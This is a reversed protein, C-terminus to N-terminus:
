ATPFVPPPPVPPPASQLSDDSASMPISGPFVSPPPPTSSIMEAAPNAQTITGGDIQETELPHDFGPAPQYTQAQDMASPQERLPGGLPQANLAIIPEPAPNNASGLAQFAADVANRADDLTGTSVSQGDQEGQTDVIHPSSVAQEIQSLTQVDTDIVTDSVNGDYVSDSPQSSPPAPPAVLGAIDPSASASGPASIPQAQTSYPEDSVVGSRQETGNDDHNLIPTDYAPQTLAEVTDSPVEPQTNATLTGTRSPPEVVRQHTFSSEAPRPLDPQPQDGAWSTQDASMPADEQTLLTGDSRVRIQPPEPPQEPEIYEYPAEVDQAQEDTPQQHEEVTPLLVDDPAGHDDGEGLPMSGDNHEHPDHHIELTGADPESTREGDSEALNSIDANGYNQPDGNSEGALSPEALEAAVLQQNAGAAMLQSSVSMTQPTTRDNGFRDTMSVIGTLLATAIQEDLVDKALSEVVLSVMESLSSASPDALNIAGMDSQGELSVTVVTADHLIRGHAQIAEDIDQQESVGLAVVVDVNFDGQSFDLDQESIATHYPTIFIRVVEDELKYRLKDAKSKDLAIIFDRLSDTNSELTDEPRLFEITSPTEGSYVATAHKDLKNLALTLGIAASLQDVSPNKSVTVLVNQAEKLKVILQKKQEDM